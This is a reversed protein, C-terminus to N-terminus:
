EFRMELSFRVHLLEDALGSSRILGRPVGVRPRAAADHEHHHPLAPPMALGMGLALGVVRAARGAVCAGRRRVHNTSAMTFTAGRSLM